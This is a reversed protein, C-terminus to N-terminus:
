LNAFSGVGRGGWSACAISHVPCESGLNLDAAKTSRSTEPANSEIVAEEDLHTLSVRESYRFVASQPRFGCLNVQNSCSLVTSAGDLM